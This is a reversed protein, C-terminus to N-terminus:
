IFVFMHTSKWIQMVIGKIKCINHNIKLFIDSTQKGSNRNVYENALDALNINDLINKHVHVLILWATSQKEYNVQPISEHVEFGLSVKM